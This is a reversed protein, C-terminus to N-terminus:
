NVKEKSLLRPEEQLEKLLRRKKVMMEGIKLYDVEETSTLYEKPISNKENNKELEIPFDSYSYEDESITQSVNSDLSERSMREDPDGDITETVM